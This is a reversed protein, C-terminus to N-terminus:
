CAEQTPLVFVTGSVVGAPSWNVWIEAPNYAGQPRRVSPVLTQQPPEYAGVARLGQRAVREADMIGTIGETAIVHDYAVQQWYHGPQRSTYAWVLQPLVLLCLLQLRYM